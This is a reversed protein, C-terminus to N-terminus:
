PALPPFGKNLDVWDPHAPPEAADPWNDNWFCKCNKPNQNVVFLNLHPNLNRGHYKSFHNDAHPGIYGVTGAAYPTCAPCTKTTCQKYVDYGLSALGVAVAVADGVPDEPGGGAAITIGARSLARGLPGSADFQGTPDTDNVPTSSAYAYTNVGGRLGIPDSQLYRGLSSDYDRYYNYNSEARSASTDTGVAGAM